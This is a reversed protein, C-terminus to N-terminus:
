KRHRQIKSTFFTHEGIKATKAYARIWKKNGAFSLNAYHDAGKTIDELKMLNKAIKDAKSKCGQYIKEKRPHTYGTFQYPKTVTEYPTKNTAKARNAIVNAVAVMGIVGQNCAESAIVKAVQINEWKTKGVVFAIFFGVAILCYTLYTKFYENRM